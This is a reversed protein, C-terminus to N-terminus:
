IGTLWLENKFQSLLEVDIYQEGYRRVSKEFSHMSDNTKIDVCVSNSEQMTVTKMGIGKMEMYKTSNTDLGSNIKMTGYPKWNLKDLIARSFVRGCGIPIVRKDYIVGDMYIAQKSVSDYYYLDQLGLLYDADKSYNKKYYEILSYSILDDSGILVVLDPNFEKAKLFAANFKQAVPTNPYEVYHWASNIPQPDDPTKAAILICDGFYRAYYDQVISTLHPRKHLATVIAVNM